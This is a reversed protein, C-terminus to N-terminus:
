SKPVFYINIQENDDNMWMLAICWSLVKWYSEWAQMLSLLHESPEAKDSEQRSAILLDINVKHGTQNLRELVLESDSNDHMSHQRATWLFVQANISTFEYSMKLLTFVAKSHDDQAL